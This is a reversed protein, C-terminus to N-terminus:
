AVPQWRYEMDRATNAAAAHGHLREVVHLAMDIGASVGASTIIKGEDVIREDDVITVDPFRSRLADISAWHTTARLGNLLGAQALIGAGTCVSTTIELGPAQAAIWLVVTQPITRTGYGGPVVILDFPPHDDITCAPVIELGGVARIPDRTEAITWATFLTQEPYRDPADPLSALSFVEFPGCFDLVEVKDFIVIGVNRM